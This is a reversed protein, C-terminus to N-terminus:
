CLQSTYCCETHPQMHNCGPIYLQVVARGAGTTHRHTAVAQISYRWQELHVM